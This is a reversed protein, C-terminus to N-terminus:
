LLHVWHIILALIVLVILFKLKFKQLNAHENMARKRHAEPRMGECDPWICEEGHFERCDCEARHQPSPSSKGSSPISNKM